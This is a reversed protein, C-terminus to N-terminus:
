KVTKWERHQHSGIRNLRTEVGNLSEMFNLATKKNMGFAQAIETTKTWDECFALVLKRRREMMEAKRRAKEEREQKARNIPGDVPPLMCGSPTVTWFAPGQGPGGVKNLWGNRFMQYLQAKTSTESVPSKAIIDLTNMGDGIIAILKERTRLSQITEYSIEYKRRHPKKPKADEQKKKRNLIEYEMMREALDGEDQASFPTYDRVGDLEVAHTAVYARPRTVYM